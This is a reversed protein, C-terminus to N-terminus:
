PILVRSLNRPNSTFTRLIHKDAFKSSPRLIVEAIRQIDDHHMANAFIFNHTKRVQKRSHKARAVLTRNYNALMNSLRTAAKLQKRGISNCHRRDMFRPMEKPESVSRRCSPIQAM